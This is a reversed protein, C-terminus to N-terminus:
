ATEPRLRAHAIWFPAKWGDNIPVLAAPRAISATRKATLRIISSGSTKRILLANLVGGSSSAHGGVTMGCWRRQLVDEAHQAFRRQKAPDAVREIKAVSEVALM